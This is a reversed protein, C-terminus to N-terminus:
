VTADEVGLRAEEQRRWKVNKIAHRVHEMAPNPNRWRERVRLYTPYTEDWHGDIEERLRKEIHQQKTSSDMEEWFRVGWAAIPAGCKEMQYKVVVMRSVWAGVIGEIEELRYDPCHEALWDHYYLCLSEWEGDQILQLLLSKNIPPNM